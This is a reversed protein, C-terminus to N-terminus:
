SLPRAHGTGILAAAISAEGRWVDAVYRAFTRSEHDNIRQTRVTLPWGEGALLEAAVAAAAQGEPTFREPCDVGALRVTVLIRLDFGLDAELVYTDGDILRSLRARYTWM